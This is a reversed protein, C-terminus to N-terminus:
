SLRMCRERCQRLIRLDVQIQEDRQWEDVVCIIKWGKMEDGYRKLWQDADEDQRM